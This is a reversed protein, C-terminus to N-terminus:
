PLLRGTYADLYVPQLNRFEVVWIPELSGSPPVKVSLFYAQYVDEVQLVQETRLKVVKEAALLAMDLPIVPRKDGQASLPARVRNVYNLVGNNNLEVRKSGGSAVVPVGLHRYNFGVINKFSDRYSNSLFPEETWGGHGAVFSAAESAAQSHSLSFSRRKGPPAAFEAFGGPYLRLAKQGDTFILAGDREGIRRVVTLDVFFRSPLEATQQPDAYRVPIRAMAPPEAPVYLGPRSVLSGGEKVLVRYPQLSGAPLSQLLTRLREAAGVPLGLRFDGEPGSIFLAGPERASFIVRKTGPLGERDPNGKWLLQWEDFPLSLPMIVEVAPGEMWARALEQTNALPLKGPPVDIEGLWPLLIGWAAEYAESGPLAAGHDEASRHFVMQSPAFLGGPERYHEPSPGVRLEQAPLLRSSGTEFWLIASIGISILVQFLLLLNWWRERRM